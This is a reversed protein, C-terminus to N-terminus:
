CLESCFAVFSVGGVGVCLYHRHCGICDVIIGICDVIYGRGKNSFVKARKVKHVSQVLVQTSFGLIRVKKAVRRLISRIITTHM